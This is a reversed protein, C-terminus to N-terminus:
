LCMVYRHIYVSTEFHSTVLVDRINQRSSASWTRGHLGSGGVHSRALSYSSCDKHKQQAAACVVDTLDELFVLLLVLLLLLRFLLMLLFFVFVFAFSGHSCGELNAVGSLDVHM